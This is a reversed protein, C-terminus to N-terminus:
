NKSPAAPVRELVAKQVNQLPYARVIFSSDFSPRTDRQATVGYTVMETRLSDGALVFRSDVRAGSVEFQSYLTDGVLYTDILIGSKEDNLFHNAAEGTAILQYDRVPAKGPEGYVIRFPRPSGAEAAGVEVRMPTKGVSKGGGDFIELEGAYNGVWEDSLPTATTSGQAPSDPATSSKAEQAGWLTGLALLALFGASVTVFRANM